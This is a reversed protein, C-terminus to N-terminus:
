RTVSGEIGGGQTFGLQVLRVNCRMENRDLGGVIIKCIRNLVSSILVADRVAYMYAYYIQYCKHCKRLYLPLVFYAYTFM